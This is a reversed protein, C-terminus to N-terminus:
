IYIYLCREPLMMCCDVMPDKVKPGAGAIFVFLHNKNKKHSTLWDGGLTGGWFYPRILPENVM